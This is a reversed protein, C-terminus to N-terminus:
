CADVMHVSNSFEESRSDTIIKRRIQRVANQICNLLSFLFHSFCLQQRKWLSTRRSANGVLGSRVNNCYPQRCINGSNMQITRWALLYLAASCLYSWRGLLTESAIWSCDLFGIFFHM